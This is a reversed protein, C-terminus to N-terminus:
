ADKVWEYEQTSLVQHEDSFTAVMLSHHGGAPDPVYISVVWDDDETVDFEWGLAPFMRRAVPLPNARRNYALALFQGFNKIDM